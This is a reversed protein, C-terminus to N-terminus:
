NHPGTCPFEVCDEPNAWSQKPGAWFTFGESSQDKFIAEHFTSIPTYDPNLFPKFAFIKEGCSNVNKSFGEFQMNYYEGFGNFPAAKPKHLPLKVHMPVTTKVVGNISLLIGVMPECHDCKSGSPCDINKPHEAIAKSDRITAKETGSHVSIGYKTSISTLRTGRNQKSKQGLHIASQTCKSATFDRVESCTHIGGEAVAGNGGISHAFNNEFIYDPDTTDCPAAKFIFGYQLTGSVINNRIKINSVGDKASIGGCDQLTFKEYEMEQHADWRIHMIWNGDVTVGRSNHVWIGHEVHDVM